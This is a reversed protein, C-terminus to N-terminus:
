PRPKEAAVRSSVLFREGDALPALPPLVSPIGPVLSLLIGCICLSM